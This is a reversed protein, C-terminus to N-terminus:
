GWTRNVLIASGTKGMTAKSIHSDREWGTDTDQVCAHILGKALAGGSDASARDAYLQWFAFLTGALLMATGIAIVPWLGWVKNLGM